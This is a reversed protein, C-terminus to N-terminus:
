HNHNHHHKDPAQEVTILNTRGLKVGKQATINNAMRNIQGVPGRLVIIEMCEHSDLHIHMSCITELLHNHQLETLKQMLSTSHHDYVICVAAVAKSQDDEAQTNSLEDRILDRLAESRSAYGKNKILEDFQGLLGRELSVGIREVQEM